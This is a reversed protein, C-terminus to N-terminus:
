QQPQRDFHEALAYANRNLRQMRTLLPAYPEFRSNLLGKNSDRNSADAKTDDSTNDIYRLWHWGVCARSEILSLAYNEYFQGRHDQTAVTWGAGSANNMGSDEGKAYFESIIVPRGSWEAFQAVQEGPTWSGYLNYSIVDVHRGAARMLAPNRRDTSYFRSGLYLHNPDHKRIAKAVCGFYRDALRDMFAQRDEDTIAAADWTAGHRETMLREAAIRGAHKIDDLKLFLDFANLKFPMENDSFYGVLYPDDKTQALTRAHEDCFSEFEADFALICDNAYNVHGSGMKTVGRSKGYAHMFNLNMAYPLRKPSASLVSDNSWPGTATFGHDRLLTITQERWDAEDKFRSAFATSLTNSTQAVSVSTAAINFYPHGEPDIMWWRPGVREVRFFGSAKLTKGALGGFRGLAAAENSPRFGLVDEVLRTPRDKAKIEKTWASVTHREAQAFAGSAGILIVLITLYKM